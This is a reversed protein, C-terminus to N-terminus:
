PRPSRTFPSLFSRSVCVPISIPPSLSTSVEFLLLVPLSLVAAAVCFCRCRQIQKISAASHISVHICARNRPLTSCRRFNDRLDPYLRTRVRAHIFGGIPVLKELPCYDADFYLEIWPRWVRSSIFMSFIVCSLILCRQLTARRYTAIVQRSFLVHLTIEYANRHEMIRGRNTSMTDSHVRLSPARSVLVVKAVAATEWKHQFRRLM